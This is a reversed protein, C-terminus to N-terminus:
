REEKKGTPSTRGAPTADLLEHPTLGLRKM